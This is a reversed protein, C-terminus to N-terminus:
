KRAKIIFHSKETFTRGGEQLYEMINQWRESKKFKDMLKKNRQFYDLSDKLTKFRLIDKEVIFHSIKFGTKTLLNKMREEDYSFQSIKNTEKWQDIHFATFVVCHGKKLVDYAKKIMIDSMYLNSVIMDLQDSLSSFSIEEANALVFTVNDISNASAYKKAAEVEKKEWDIGIVRKAHPAINFALRGRGCGVDLITMKKPREALILKKLAPNISLLNEKISKGSPPSLERERYVTKKM